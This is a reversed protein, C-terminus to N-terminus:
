LYLVNKSLRNISPLTYKKKLLEKMKGSIKVGNIASYIIKNCRKFDKKLARRVKM